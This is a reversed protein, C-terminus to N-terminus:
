ENELAVGEDQAVELETGALAEQSVSIRRARRRLYVTGLDVTLVCVAIVLLVIWAQNM